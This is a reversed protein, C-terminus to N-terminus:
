LEAVACAMVMEFDGHVAIYEEFFGALATEEAISGPDCILDHSMVTDPSQADIIVERVKGYLFTERGAGGDAYQDGPSEVAYVRMSWPQAYPLLGM